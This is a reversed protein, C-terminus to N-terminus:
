GFKLALTASTVPALEPMPSAVAWANASTVNPKKGPLADSLVEHIFREALKGIRLYNCHHLVFFLLGVTIAGVGLEYSPNLCCVALIGVGLSFLADVRAAGASHMIDTLDTACADASQIPSDNKLNEKWVATVVVWANLRDIKKTEVPNGSVVKKLDLFDAQSLREVIGTHDIASVLRGRLRQHATHHIVSFLYGLGGSALFAAVAFGAGADANLKAIQDLTWCLDITLLLLVSQVGFTLGPTVYRLFRRAEDM